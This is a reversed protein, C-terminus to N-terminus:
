SVTRDRVRRVARRVAWRAHSAVPRPAVTMCRVHHNAVEGSAFRRKWASDGRLLDFTVFGERAAAM